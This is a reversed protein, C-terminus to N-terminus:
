FLILQYKKQHLPESMFEKMGLDEAEKQKASAEKLKEKAPKSAGKSDLKFAERELTRMEQLLRRMEPLAKVAGKHAYSHPQGTWVTHENFQIHEQNIGGFIMGGLNGNGIPLAELWKEAPKTYWLSLENKQPKGILQLFILM